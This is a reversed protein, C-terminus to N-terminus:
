LRLEPVCARREKRPQTLMCTQFLEKRGISMSGYSFCIPNKSAFTHFGQMEAVPIVWVKWNPFARGFYIVPQLFIVTTSQVARRACGDHPRTVVAGKNICGCECTKSSPYWKDIKHITVGYKSSIYMLKDIFSSHSLDSVRKGWLRKMEEINLDEIFIYDYQKCLDHALKWQFDSRLNNIKRYAQQLEFLKHRRRQLALAHNWVFCCERLMKDLYKTKKSHYINYKYSIIKLWM